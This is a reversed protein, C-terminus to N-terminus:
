VNGLDQYNGGTYKFAISYLGIRPKRTPKIPTLFPM